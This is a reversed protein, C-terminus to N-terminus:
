VGIAELRVKEASLDTTNTVETSLAGFAASTTFWQLTRVNQVGQTITPTTTTHGTFVKVYYTGSLTYGGFLPLLSDFGGWALASANIVDGTGSSTGINSYSAPGTHDFISFHKNGFDTPYGLLPANTINAM